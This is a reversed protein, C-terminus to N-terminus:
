SFFQVTPSIRTDASNGIKFINELFNSWTAVLVLSRILVQVPFIGPMELLNYNMLCCITCLDTM